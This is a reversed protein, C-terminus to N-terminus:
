LHTDLGFGAGGITMTHELKEEKQYICNSVSILWKIVPPTMAHVLRAFFTHIAYLTVYAILLM